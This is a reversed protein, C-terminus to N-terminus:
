QSQIVDHSCYLYLRGNAELATPDATYRQYFIPYDAFIVINMSLTLVVAVFVSIIRKLNRKM